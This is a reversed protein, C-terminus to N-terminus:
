LRGQFRFSAVKHWMERGSDEKDSLGQQLIFASSAAATFWVGSACERELQGPGWGSYRTFWRHWVWCSAEAAAAETDCERDSVRINKAHLPCARPWM